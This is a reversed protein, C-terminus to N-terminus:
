ELFFGLDRLDIGLRLRLVGVGVFVAFVAVVFVGMSDILGPQRAPNGTFLRRDHVIIDFADNVQGVGSFGLQEVEGGVLRSM